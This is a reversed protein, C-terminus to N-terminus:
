ALGELGGAVEAWRSFTQELPAELRHQEQAIQAYESHHLGPQNARALVTQIQAELQAIEAELREKECELHWRGKPRSPKPLAPEM